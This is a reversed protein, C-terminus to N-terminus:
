TYRGEERKRNYMTLRDEEHLFDVGCNHGKIISQHHVKRAHKPYMVIILIQKTIYYELRQLIINQFAV